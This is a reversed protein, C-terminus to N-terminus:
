VYEAFAAVGRRFLPIALAPALLSWAAGYVLYWPRWIVQPHEGVVATIPRLLGEGEMVALRLGELIPAVPNLMILASGFSGLMAPEYFVPTFFIGFTLIIQVLYRVDRYFINGCALAMGAGLVLLFLLILLVPVWILAPTWQMELFPLALFLVSLALASDFGQALLASLPLVERPFYVKTVLNSNSVLSNTVFGLGGVVFGWPISKLVLGGLVARDIEAGGIQSMALRVVVGSVVVMTPMLIAWLFGMAAQKYRSRVDRKVLEYVLDRAGAVDAVSARLSQYM